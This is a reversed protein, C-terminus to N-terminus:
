YGSTKGASSPCCFVSDVYALVVVVRGAINWSVTSFQYILGAFILLVLLSQLFSLVNVRIVQRHLFYVFLPNVISISIIGAMAAGLIGYRPILLLQAGITFIAHFVNIFAPKDPQGIAVLTYGMTYDIVTLSLLVMLLVFAPVSPLYAESFVIVIIDSGFLVVVLTALVALFTLVRLLTNVLDTVQVKDGAAYFRAVFPYFVQRLADYLQEFSDPFRRAVEYFAVENPGLMAGIILTDVRQFVFTLIYNIQIPLGFRLMEMVAKRDFEFRLGHDTSIVVWLITLGRSLIKAGILGYIGWGMVAVLIVLMVLNILSNLAGMLAIKKFEFIGQLISSTLKTMGELGFMLPLYIVIRQYTSDGGFASFLQDSIFLTLVSAAVIVVLRFIVATNIMRWTEDHDQTRALFQPVTLNLGFSTFEALFIAVVQLLLFLGLEETPLIRTSIMLGVMGLAIVSVQGLGTALTGHLLKSVYNTKM